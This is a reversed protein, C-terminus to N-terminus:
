AVGDIEKKEALWRPVWVVKKIEDLTCESMPLQVKDEQIILMWSKPLVTDIDEFAVSLMEKGNTQNCEYCRDYEDSVRKGCDLCENEWSM